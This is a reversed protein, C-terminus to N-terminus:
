IVRFCEVGILRSLKEVSSASLEALYLTFDPSDKWTEAIVDFSHFNFFNFEDTSITYKEVDPRDCLM